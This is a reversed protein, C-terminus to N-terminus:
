TSAVCVLSSVLIAPKIINSRLNGTLLRDIRRSFCIRYTDRCCDLLVIPSQAIFNFGIYEVSCTRDHSITTAERERMGEGLM